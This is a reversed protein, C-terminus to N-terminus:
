SLEYSGAGSSGGRAQITKENMWEAFEGGLAREILFLKLMANEFAINMIVTTVTEQPQESM